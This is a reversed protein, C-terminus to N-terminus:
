KSQTYFATETTYLGATIRPPQLAIKATGHENNLLALGQRLQFSKEETLYDTKKHQCFPNENNIQFKKETYINHHQALSLAVIKPESKYKLLLVLPVTLLHVTCLRMNM